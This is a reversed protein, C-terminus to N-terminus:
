KTEGGRDRAHTGAYRRRGNFRRERDDSDIFESGDYNWGVQINFPRPRWGCRLNEFSLGLNLGTNQRLAM